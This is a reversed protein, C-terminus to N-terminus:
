FFKSLFMHKISMIKASRQILGLRFISYLVAELEKAIAKLLASGFEKKKKDDLLVARYNREEDPDFIIENREINNAIKHTYGHVPLEAEFPARKGDDEM